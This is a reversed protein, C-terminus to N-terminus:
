LGFVQRLYFNHNESLRCVFIKFYKPMDFFVILIPKYIWRSNEFFDFILFKRFKVNKQINEFFNTILDGGWKLVLSFFYGNLFRKGWDMNAIM